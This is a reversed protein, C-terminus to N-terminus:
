RVPLLCGSPFQGSHVNSRPPLVGLFGQSTISRGQSSSGVHPVLEVFERSSSHLAVVTTRSSSHLAAVTTGINSTAGMAMAAEAIAEVVAGTDRVLDTVLSWRTRTRSHLRRPSRRRAPRRHSGKGDITPKADRRHTASSRRLKMAQLGRTPLPDTRRSTTPPPDPQNSPWAEHLEVLFKHKKTNLEPRGNNSKNPLSSM